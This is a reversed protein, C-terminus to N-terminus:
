HLDIYSPVDGLSLYLVKIYVLQKCLFYMGNRQLTAATNLVNRNIEVKSMEDYLKQASFAAPHSLTQSVAEKKCEPDLDAFMKLHCLCLYAFTM